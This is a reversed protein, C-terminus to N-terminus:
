SVGPLFKISSLTFPYAFSVAANAATTINNTAMPTLVVLVTEACDAVIVIAGVEAAVNLAPSVFFFLVIHEVVATGDVHTASSPVNMIATVWAAALVDVVIGSVMLTVTFFASKAVMVGLVPASELALFIVSKSDVLAVFVAEAAFVPIKVRKTL